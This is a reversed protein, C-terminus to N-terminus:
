PYKYPRGQKLIVCRVKPAERSLIEAFRTFDAAPAHYPVAVKPQVMKVIEVGTKPSAGPAPAGVTCFVIDPAAREGIRKMEPFPLSDGTHYIKVGDETTILFSVPTAAPHRFGEARVAVNDIKLESGVRAERLKDPAVIGRLRRTSTSDAVVLCRTRNHLDRVFAEDFHDYHDHTILIADVTKFIGPDVEAPDVVLTKSPTRITVGSYSNFWLFAVKGKKPVLSEISM